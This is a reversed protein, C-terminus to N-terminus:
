EVYGLVKINACKLELYIEEITHITEKIEISYGCGRPSYEIPTKLITVQIGKKYLFDRARYAYTISSLIILKRKYM